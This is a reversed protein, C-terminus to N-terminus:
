KINKLGESIRKICSNKSNQWERFTLHIVKFGLRNLIKHKKIDSVISKKNDKVGDVEVILSNDNEDLLLLDCSLNATEFPAKVKFGVNILENAITKEFENKYKNETYLNSNKKETTISINSNNELNLNKNLNNIHEYNEVYELYSRLLGNPLNKPNQSIFSIVQKRARTIAVNFLNPKQLFVLSQHFSNPALTWSIIIIDREDGQFAHATGIEIKHQKILNETLIQSVAKKLGDVQARFPSIIGITIPESGTKKRTEEDDIIISYLKKIVAEIEVNNKSMGWEVKGNEVINLSLINDPLHISRNMVKIRNGYFEKNSFNIIPPLSRFHEDLLVQANSYYNALDFMSNSRFRWMLQYKDPIEYQALYSQEKAKELFSLHPLQKDDGVIVAKKSRYLVPFCSAIDCQSAEDIICIDFLGPKLPLAQSIAYTTVCWCPFTEKLPTFDEEELLRSQLNKKREVIAKAHVKLRRVKKEDCLLSKLAEQRKNKLIKIALDKQKEKFAEIQKLILHLNGKSYIQNEIKNLEFEIKSVDLEQRVQNLFAFDISEIRKINLIKELKRKNIFSSIKSLINSKNLNCESSSLIKEISEIEEFNLIKNIYIKKNIFQLVEEKEKFKEYFNNELQIIQSAIVELENAQKHLNQMDKIDVLVCDEFDTNLDIKGSLLENLRYSLEKQYNLRGARLSLFPAGFENLRDNVVDCAKDMRSAVLVTKGKALYHSVLNVITQSKGTGPPGYVLTLNNLESQKIVSEQADSIDLPTTTFFNKLVENSISATNKKDIKQEYEDNIISLATERFIGSPKESIQKLEHLLGATIAPRKTLIIASSPYLCIKNKSIIRKDSSKISDEEKIEMDEEEYIADVNNDEYFKTNKSLTESKNNLNKFLDSSSPLKIESNKDLVIEVDPIISKLTTIFIDLKEETLPLEPVVDLLGFLLNEVEDEDDNKKMLATLAGTNLSITEDTLSCVINKEERELKCPMYLLPTLFEGAKKNKSNKGTLFLYGYILYKDKQCIQSQIMLETLESSSGDLYLNKPYNYFLDSFNETNENLFIWKNEKDQKLNRFTSSKVEERICDHLYLSLRKIFSQHFASNIIKTAEQFM